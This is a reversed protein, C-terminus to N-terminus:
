VGHGPNGLAPIPPGAASQMATGGENFTLIQPFAPPADPPDISVTTLWTGVIPDREGNQGAHAPRAFVAACVVAMLLTVLPSRARQATLM